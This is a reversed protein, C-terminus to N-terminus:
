NRAPASSGDHWFGEVYTSTPIEPVGYQESQLLAALMATLQSGVLELNAVVGALSAVPQRLCMCACAVREPCAIGAAHLLRRISVWNCVVADLSEREVWDAAIKAAAAVGL